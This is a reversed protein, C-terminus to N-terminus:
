WQDEGQGQRQRQGEQGEQGQGELARRGGHGTQDQYAKVQREFNDLSEGLPETLKSRLLNALMAQFRRRQKPEYDLCLLRWVEAGRGSQATRAKKMASGKVLMVLVYYLQADAQRQAEAQFPPIVETQGEAYVMLDVIDTSVAAAYARFTFAWDGWAEREGEFTNPQKMLRTDVLGASVRPASQQQTAAQASQAAANAHAVAQEMAALRNVLEANQGSVELLQRQIQEM